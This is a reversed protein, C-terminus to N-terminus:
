DFKLVFNLHNSFLSIRTTLLSPVFLVKVVAYTQGHPSIGPFFSDSPLNKRGWGVWDIDRDFSVLWHEKSGFPTCRHPYHLEHNCCPNNSVEALSPPRHLRFPPRRLPFFPHLPPHTHIFITLIIFCQRLQLAFKLRIEDVHANIVSVM